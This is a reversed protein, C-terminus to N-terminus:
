NLKRVVSLVFRMEDSAAHLAQLRSLDAIALRRELALAVHGGRLRTHASLLDVQIGEDRGEESAIQVM